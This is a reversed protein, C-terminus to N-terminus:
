LYLGLAEKLAGRDNDALAYCNGCCSDESCPLMRVGRVIPRLDDNPLYVPTAATYGTFDAMRYRESSNNVDIATCVASADPDGPDASISYWRFWATVKACNGDKLYVFHKRSRSIVKHALDLDGIFLSVKTGGGVAAEKFMVVASHGQVITTDSHEANGYAEAVQGKTKGHGGKGIRTLRDANIREHLQKAHLQKVIKAKGTKVLVIAGGAGAQPVLLSLKFGATAAVAGGGPDDDPDLEDAGGGSDSDGDGDDSDPHQEDSSEEDGDVEAIVMPAPGTTRKYVTWGTEPPLLAGNGADAQSCCVYFTKGLQYSDCLKWTSCGRDYAITHPGDIQAYNTLTNEEPKNVSQKRGKRKLKTLDLQYRGNVALRGAGEVVYVGSTLAATGDTGTTWEMDDDGDEDVSRMAKLIRAWDEDRYNPNYWWPHARRQAGTAADPNAHPAMGMAALLQHAWKLAEEAIAPQDDWTPIAHHDYGKADDVGGDEPLDPNRWIDSNRHRRPIIPADDGGKCRYYAIRLMSTLLRQVDLVDCVRRSGDWSALKGYLEENYDSGFWEFHMGPGPGHDKEHERVLQCRLIVDCCSMEMDQYGERTIFNEGLTFRHPGRHDKKQLIWDRWINLFYIVFYARKMRERITVTKATFISLYMSVVILFVRTGEYAGGPCADLNGMKLHKAVAPIAHEYVSADCFQYVAQTDMRDSRNLGTASFRPRKSAELDITHDTRLLHDVEHLHVLHVLYPGLRINRISDLVNILKKANHRWDQDLYLVPHPKRRGTKTPCTGFSGGDLLGPKALRLVKVRRKGACVASALMSDFRESNFPGALVKGGVTLVVDGAILGRLPGEPDVALVTTSMLTQELSGTETADEFRVGAGQGVSDCIDVFIQERNSVSSLNSPGAAAAGGAHGMMGTFASFYAPSPASSGPNVSGAAPRLDVIRASPTHMEGTYRIAQHQHKKIPWRAGDHLQMGAHHGQHTSILHNWQDTLAEVSLRTQAATRTRAGDSARDVLPGIVDALYVDYLHQVYDWDQVVRTHKFKLCTLYYGIPIPPFVEPPCQPVIIFVRLQNGLKSESMFKVAANYASADDSHGVKHCYGPTCDTHGEPGCYGDILDALGDPVYVPTEKVMTEDESAISTASGLPYKALAAFGTYITRLATMFKHLEDPVPQDKDFRTPIRIPRMRPITGSVAKVYRALSTASGGGHNAFYFQMCSKGWKEKFVDAMMMVAESIRNTNIKADVRVCARNLMNAVAAPVADYSAKGREVAKMLRRVAPGFSHSRFLREEVAQMCEVKQFLRDAKKQLTHRELRLATVQETKQRLALEGEAPMMDGFNICEIQLNPDAIIADCRKTLRFMSRQLSRVAESSGHFLEHCHKCCPVDGHSYVIVNAAATPCYGTCKPDASRVTPMASWVAPTQTKLDPPLIMEGNPFLMYPGILRPCGVLLLVSLDIVGAPTGIRRSSIPVGGCRQVTWNEAWDRSSGVNKAGMKVLMTSIVGQKHKKQRKAPPWSTASTTAHSETHEAVLEAVTAGACHSGNSRGHLSVKASCEVCVLAAESHDLAYRDSAGVANSVLWDVTPTPAHAERVRRKCEANITHPTTKLHLLVGRYGHASPGSITVTGLKGPCDSCTWVTKLKGTGVVKRVTASGRPASAHDFLKLYQQYSQSAEVELDVQNTAIWQKRSVRAKKVRPQGDMMGGIAVISIVLALMCGAFGLAPLQPAQHTVASLM